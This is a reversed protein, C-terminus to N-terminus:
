KNEDDDIREARHALQRWAQAMALLTNKETSDETQQALRICEAAYHRYLEAKGM